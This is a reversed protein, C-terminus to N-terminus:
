NLNLERFNKLEGKLLDAIEKPKDGLSENVANFNDAEKKWDIPNKNEINKNLIFASTFLSSMKELCFNWDNGIKPFYIDILATIEEGGEEFINKNFTDNSDIFITNQATNAKYSLEIFVRLKERHNDLFLLKAIIKEVTKQLKFYEETSLAHKRNRWSM